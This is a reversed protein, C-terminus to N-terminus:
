ERIRARKLAQVTLHPWHQALLRSHTHCSRRDIEAGGSVGGGTRGPHTPFYKGVNTVTVEGEDKAQCGCVVECCWVLSADPLFGGSVKDVKAPIKMDSGM